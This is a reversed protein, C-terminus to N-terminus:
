PYRYKQIPAIYPARLSPTLNKTSSYQAGWLEECNPLSNKYRVTLETLESILQKLSECSCHREYFVKYGLTVKTVYSAGFLRWLQKLM